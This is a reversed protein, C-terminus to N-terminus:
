SASLIYSPSKEGGTTTRKIFFVLCAKVLIESKLMMNFIFILGKHACIHLSLGEDCPKGFKQYKVNVCFLKPLVCFMKINWQSVVDIFELWVSFMQELLCSLIM